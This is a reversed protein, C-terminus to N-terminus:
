DTEEFSPSSKRGQRKEQLLQRAREVLEAPLDCGIKKWTLFLALLVDPADLDEYWPEPMEDVYKLETRSQSSKGHKSVEIVMGRLTGTRNMWDRIQLGNGRGFEILGQRRSNIEACAMCYRIQSGVGISCQECGNGTCPIMRGGTYHGTYWIPSSSLMVLVLVGRTSAQYWHFDSWPVAGAPLDFGEGM